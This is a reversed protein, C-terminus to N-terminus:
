MLLGPLSQPNTAIITMTTISPGPTRSLNRLSSHAPVFALPRLETIAKEPQLRSQYTVCLDSIAVRSGCCKHSVGRRCTVPHPIQLLFQAVPSGGQEARTGGSTCCIILYTLLIFSRKDSLIKYFSFFVHM